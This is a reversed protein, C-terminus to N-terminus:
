GQGLGSKCLTLEISQIELINYHYYCKGRSDCWPLGYHNWLLGVGLIRFDIYDMIVKIHFRLSRHGWRGTRPVHAVVSEHKATAALWPHEVFGGINAALIPLGRRSTLVAFSPSKGPSIFARIDTDNLCPTSWGTPPLTNFNDWIFPRYRRCINLFSLTM